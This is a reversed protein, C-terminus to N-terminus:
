QFNFYSNSPMRHLYSNISSIWQFSHPLSSIESEILLAMKLLSLSFMKLCFYPELSLWGETYDISWQSCSVPIGILFADPVEWWIGGRLIRLPLTFSDTKIIMTTPLYLCQFNCVGSRSPLASKKTNQLTTSLFWTIARLRLKTIIYEGM